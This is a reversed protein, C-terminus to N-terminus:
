MGTLELLKQFWGLLPEKFVWYIVGGIILGPLSYWRSEKKYVKAMTFSSITISIAVIGLIYFMVMLLYVYTKVEDMKVITIFVLFQSMLVGLGTM